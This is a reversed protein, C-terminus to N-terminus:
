RRKIGLWLSLLVPLGLCLAALWDWGGDGVLGAILGVQTVIAIVIPWEM